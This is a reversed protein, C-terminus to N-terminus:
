PPHVTDWRARQAPLWRSLLDRCNLVKELLDLPVYYHQNSAEFGSRSDQLQLVMLDKALSVEHKLLRELMRCLRLGETRNTTAALEDRAM